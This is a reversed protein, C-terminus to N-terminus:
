SCDNIENLNLIYFYNDVMSMTKWNKEGCSVKNRAHARFLGVHIYVM